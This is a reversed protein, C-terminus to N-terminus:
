TVYQWEWGLRGSRWSGWAWFFAAATGQIGQAGRCQLAVSDCFCDRVLSFWWHGLATQVKQPGKAPLIRCQWRLSCGLSGRALLYRPAGFGWPRRPLRCTGARGTQLAPRLATATSAETRWPRLTNAQKRTTGPRFFGLHQVIVLTCATFSSPPYELASSAAQSSSQRPIGVIGVIGLLGLYARRSGLIVYRRFKAFSVRGSSCYRQGGNGSTFCCDCLPLCSLSVDVAM